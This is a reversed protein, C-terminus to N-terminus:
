MVKLNLKKFIYVSPTGNNSSFETSNKALGHKSPLSSNESNYIGMKNAAFDKLSWMAKM